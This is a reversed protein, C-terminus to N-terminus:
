KRDYKTDKLLEAMKKTAHYYNAKLGGVSTGLVKSIEEYPMDDYYRLMFTERQKEPLRDLATKIREGLETNTLEQHPNKNKSEIQIFSDHDSLSFMRRIKRKRLINKSHNATVTYLWTKLSADGRFRDIKQIAKIFVEQTADDAEFKDSLYRLAVSYVFQQYQRMFQTIVRRDNSKIGEILEKDSLDKM